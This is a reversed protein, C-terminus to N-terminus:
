KVIEEPPLKLLRRFQGPTMNIARQLHRTFHSQDCFGCQAAIESLGLATTALMRKAEAIRIEERLQHFTKGTDRKLHRVISPVSAGVARSVGALTVDDRYHVELWRAARESVARGGAAERTVSQALERMIEQFLYSADAVTRAQDLRAVLRMESSSAAAWDDGRLITDRTAIALPVRLHAKLRVLDWSCAQLVAALFSITHRVIAGADGGPLAQVLKQARALLRASSCDGPRLRRCLEAIDRQQGYIGSQRRFFTPSNIGASFTAELLYAGIGRLDRPTMVAVACRMRQLREREERRGVLARLAGDAHSSEEGPPAFGSAVLCGRCRALPALVVAVFFLGAWCTYYFPEGSAYSNAAANEYTARCRAATSPLRICERCFPALGEGGEWRNEDLLYIAAGQGTHGRVNRLLGAVAGASLGVKMIILIYLFLM